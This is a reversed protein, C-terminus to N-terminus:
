DLQRYTLINGGPLYMLEMQFNEVSLIAYCYTEGAGMDRAALYPGDGSFRDCSDSVTLIDTGMFAGDYTNERLAGLITFGAAPDDQAYWGGQLRDLMADHSTWERPLVRRLVISATSDYIEELDGAVEIPTGPLWGAMLDLVSAPTRGDDYAFFETGDAVFSCAAEGEFTCGQLTAANAYPEGWTGPATTTPAPAPAPEPAPTAANLTLSYTKATKGTDLKRFGERRYGRDACDADGRITFADSTTCFMADGSFVAAGGSLARYYYYRNDLADRVPSRCAGPDVTWWGESVWDDGDAYGIALSLPQGTENCFELEALAPSALLGLALSLRIM